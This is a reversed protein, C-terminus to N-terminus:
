TTGLCEALIGTRISALVPGRFDKTEAISCDANLVIYSEITHVHCTEKLLCPQAHSKVHQFWVQFSLKSLSVFAVQFSFLYRPLGRTSDFCLVVKM